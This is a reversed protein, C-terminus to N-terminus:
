QLSSQVEYQRGNLTKTIEFGRKSLKYNPTGRDGYSRALIGQDVLDDLNAIVEQRDIRSLLDFVASDVESMPHLIPGAMTESVLIRKDDSMSAFVRMILLQIDDLTREVQLVEQETLSNLHATLAGTLKEKLRTGTKDDKSISFQLVRHHSIDFPLDKPNGIDSNFLMMVNQESHKAIAYGLEFMVNQNVLRRGNVSEDVISVDAVFIGCHDIKDKITSVINPSGVTGQTDRDLRPAKDLTNDGSLDRIAASLAKDIFNKTDKHDSQWSYFITTDNM